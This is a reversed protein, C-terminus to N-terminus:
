YIILCFYIIQIKSYYFKVKCFFPTLLGPVNRTHHLQWCYFLMLVQQVFTIHLASFCSNDSFYNDVWSQLANSYHLTIAPSEWFTLMKM